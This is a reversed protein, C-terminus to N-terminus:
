LISGVKSLVDHADVLVVFPTLHTANCILQYQVQDEDDISGILIVDITEIGEQSWNGNGNPSYVFYIVCYQSKCVRRPQGLLCM